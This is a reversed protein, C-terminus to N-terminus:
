GAPWILEIPCRPGEATALRQDITVLTVGFHEALAVYSADYATMRRRLDWIRALLAVHDYRTVPLAGLRALVTEGEEDTLMAEMVFRRAMSAVELDLLAPAMLEDEAELRRRVREAPQTFLHFVLSSDVVIL